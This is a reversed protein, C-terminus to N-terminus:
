DSEGGTGSQRQKDMVEKNTKQPAKLKECYQVPLQSNSARGQDQLFPIMETHGKCSLKSLTTQGCMWLLGVEEDSRAQECVAMKLM